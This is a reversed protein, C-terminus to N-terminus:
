LGSTFPVSTAPLWSNGAIFSGVTFKSAESACTIIQYGGWKMRNKTSSGPGINMYEAYFLTKLAFNGSWEMVTTNGFIFDVMGYIKCERYFQRESHVYFTDKYGEFNCKYFVSLDFGSRLAVAQHNAAGVTNRFTVDWAIFGDGIVAVTASKFTTSGGGMSRSGTIITKGIGDGVFM